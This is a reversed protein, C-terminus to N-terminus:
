NIPRNVQFVQDLSFADKTAGNKDLLQLKTHAEELTPTTGAPIWWLVSHTKMKAFWEARRKLFRVHVTKYVFKRLSEVDRWTSMNVIIDDGFDKFTAADIDTANGAPTQLRWVFGDSREALSNILDLNDVFDKLEPSDLPYALSAINLQALQQDPM